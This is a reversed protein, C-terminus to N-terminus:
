KKGKEKWIKEFFPWFFIKGYLFNRKKKPAYVKTSTNSAKKCSEEMHTDTSDLSYTNTHTYDENKTRDLMQTYGSLPTFAQFCDPIKLYSTLTLSFFIFIWHSTHSLAGAVTIQQASSAASHAFHSTSTWAAFLSALLCWLSRRWHRELLSGGQSM